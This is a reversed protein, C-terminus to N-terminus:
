SAVDGRRRLEAALAGVRARTAPSAIPAHEVLVVVAPGRMGADFLQERAKVAETAPDDAGYPDLRNAVSGGLAGALLFFAIAILGIRRPRRDALRALSDFM